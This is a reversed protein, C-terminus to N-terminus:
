NNGKISKAYSILERALMLNTNSIEGNGCLRAVENELETGEIQQLISQTEDKEVKKSVVFNADAISIIQPLHSIAIVQSKKSISNLKTALMQGTSGSIGADIEDFILIDKQDQQNSINKYALMFRSLEGGSIIKSLSKMEQGKNSSFIFEIDDIGERTLNKMFDLENQRFNVKFNANSMGLDKLENILMKEFKLSIDKRIKSLKIAIEETEQLLIEKENTLKKIFEENNELFLVREKFQNLNTNIEELTEGYKRKLKKIIELREEIEDIEKESFDLRSIKTSIIESIDQLEFKINALRNYTDELENDYDVISHLFNQSEKIASDLAFGSYGNKLVNYCNNLSDLIKKSNLYLNKKQLLNEFEDVNFINNEIEDIQFKLLDLEREKDEINECNSKLKDEIQKIIDIKTNLEKKLESTESVKFADIIQIHKKVDLLSFHDQQNYVDVLSQSIKNLNSLTISNGNVRIDSKGDLFLVRSIILDDEPEIGLDKLISDIRKDYNFFSAQVKTYNANDRIITKDSRAGLVFKIAKMIISKGSGTEGSIVNLNNSFNIESKKIIAFNEIRLLDLM